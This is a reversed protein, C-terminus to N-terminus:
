GVERVRCVGNALRMQEVTKCAVRFLEPSAVVIALCRARSTAVNLRNPSYLFGMGRPAEEATSTAMSYIVVPAEQGQFKDVTGVRAGAPLAARLAAVQANYPSIVLVDDLGLKARRGEANTWWGRELLEGFLRRVEAVEEESENQNGVHPVAVVRLGTDGIAEVGDLAQRELGPRYSLKAEYFLESTFACLDPHLRRTESLFLGQEPALTKEEGLVHGLVSAAAGPPHQGKVPQELQQPDGLLVMSRAAPSTAVASALSFQSAEDIFLVEVAGALEPRAWLWATGAAVQVEPTDLAAAVAASKMGRVWPHPLVQEEDGAQAIGLTRGAEEALQCLRKLFNGIVKHSNGTVGVKHGAAILALAMEAGGYTKGSGPPGQIALLGADLAGVLRLAAQSATEGRGILPGQCPPKLRPPRRLLLDRAARHPGEGDIGGDAVSAGLRLLSALQEKAGVIKRAVLATVDPPPGSGNGRKVVLRGAVDDVEDIVGVRQYAGTEKDKSRPDFVEDGAALSHEQPPFAYEYFTSRAKPLPPRPGVPMLGGACIKNEVLDADSLDCLLFFELWEAKAERRHYNLLNGLLAATPDGTDRLRDALAAVEADKALLEDLDPAIRASPRPVERGSERALEERRAELWDRLKWTSLCDDLNYVRVKERVDNTLPGSAGLELWMELAARAAGADHLEAERSYAYLPELKKISYSEVGVRVAQRVVRYLDVLVGNRLLDDVEAERTGHRSMLKRLATPEYHNYHFVHLNPDRRRAEIILDLTAEFAAKETAADQAWFAHTTPAGAADPSGPAAVGFLYELGDDFAFPDGEIDFFLDGPSPVPLAGLGLDPTLQPLLEYVLRGTERTAVQLRAQERTRELAEASARLPAKALPIPLKALAAVTTVGLDGLAARQHRTIGAVLSLHDDARRRKDCATSWRCSDCKEVPEPYTAAPPFAPAGHTLAAVFDAKTRRYYADFDALRLREEPHGPGGLILRMHQPMRGQLRATLEAYACLQLVASVKAARALKADAPEYSWAGLESPADVRILFDAHGRWTVDGDPQLFTAQYIIADGRRMALETERAAAEVGPLGLERDVAIRTLRRAGPGAVDASATAELEALYRQEHELGRQLLLDFSPDSFVPWAVLKAAAARELETLHRCAGFSVVDSPSLITRGDIVRVRHPYM